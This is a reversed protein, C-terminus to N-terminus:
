LKILANWTAKKTKLDKENISINNKAAFSKLEKHTIDNYKKGDITPENQDPAPNSTSKNSLNNAEKNEKTNYDIKMDKRKCFTSVMKVLAKQSKESGGTITIVNKKM